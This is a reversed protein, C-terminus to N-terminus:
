AAQMPYTKLLEVALHLNQNTDESCVAAANTSKGLQEDDLFKHVLDHDVLVLFQLLIALRENCTQWLRTIM